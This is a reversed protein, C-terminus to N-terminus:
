IEMVDAEFFFLLRPSKKECFSSDKETTKIFSSRLLSITTDVHSVKGLFAKKKKKEGM